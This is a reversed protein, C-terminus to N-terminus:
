VRWWRREGGVRKSRVTHTNSQLRELAERVISEAEEVREALARETGPWVVADEDSYSAARAEWPETGPEETPLVDYLANGVEQLDPREEVAREVSRMRTELDGVGREIRRLSDEVGSLNVPAGEPTADERGNIEKEVAVRILATLSEFVRSGDVYEEWAGKTAPDIRLNIQTKASM